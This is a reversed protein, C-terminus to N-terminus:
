VLGLEGARQTVNKFGINHYRGHIKRLILKATSASKWKNIKPNKNTWNRHLIHNVNEHPMEHFKPFARLYHLWKIINIIVVVFGRTVRWCEMKRLYTGKKCM